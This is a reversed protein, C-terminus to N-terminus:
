ITGAILNVIEVLKLLDLMKDLMGISSYHM